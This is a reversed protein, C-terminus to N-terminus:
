SEAELVKLFAKVIQTNFQTGSNKILEGIATEKSLAPRYARSSTIADYADAVSVIQAFISIIDGKLGDPYGLGDYREHHSRVISLMEEDFLVPRLANEGVV